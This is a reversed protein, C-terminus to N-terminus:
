LNSIKLQKLITELKIIGLIQRSTGVLAVQTGQELMQSVVEPLSAEAAVELFDRRALQRAQYSEGSTLNTLDELRILGVVGIKTTVVFLQEGTQYLEDIKLPGLLETSKVSVLQELPVMLDVAQRDLFNPVAQIIQRETESLVRQDHEVLYDFERRSALQPPKIVPQDFLPLRWKDLRELKPLLKPEIKRYLREALSAVVALRSGVLVVLWLGLWGVIAWWVNPQLQFMLVWCWSALMGSSILIMTKLLPYLRWRQEFLQDAPNNRHQRQRLQWASLPGYDWRWALALMWLSVAVVLFALYVYNMHNNYCILLM